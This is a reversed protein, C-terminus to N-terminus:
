VLLDGGLKADGFPLRVVEIGLCQRDALLVVTALQFLRYWSEVDPYRRKKRGHYCFRIRLRDFLLITDVAGSIAFHSGCSEFM